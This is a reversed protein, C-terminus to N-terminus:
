SKDRLMMWGKGGLYVANSLGFVQLAGAPIAPMEGSATHSALVVYQFGIAIIAVLLQVRESSFYRTGDSKTGMLLGRLNIEGTLLKLGVILGLGGVFLLVEWRILKILLSYSMGM